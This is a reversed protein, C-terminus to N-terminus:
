TKESLTVMLGQLIQVARYMIINVHDQSQNHYMYPDKDNRFDRRVRLVAQRFPLV